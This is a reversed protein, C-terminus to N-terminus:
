CDIQRARIIDFVIWVQFESFDIKEANESEVERHAKGGGTQGSDARETEVACM